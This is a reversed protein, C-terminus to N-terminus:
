LLELHFVIIFHFLCFVKKRSFYFTNALTWIWYVISLFCIISVSKGGVRIFEALLGGNSNKKKKGDALPAGTTSSAENKQKQRRSSMSRSSSFLCCSLCLFLSCRAALLNIRTTRLFRDDMRNFRRLRATKPSDERRIGAAESEEGQQSRETRM